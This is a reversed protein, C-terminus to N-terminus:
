GASRSRPSPRGTPPTRKVKGPDDPFAGAPAPPVPCQEKAGAGGVRRGEGWLRAARPLQAHGAEEVGGGGFWHLRPHVDAGGPLSAAQSSYLTTPTLLSLNHKKKKLASSPM